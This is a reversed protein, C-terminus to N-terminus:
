CDWGRTRESQCVCALFAALWSYCFSKGYGTLLAVFVDKGKVFEPAVQMRQEKVDKYGMERVAALVSEAIGSTIFM